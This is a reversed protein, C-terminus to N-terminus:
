IRNKRKIQEKIIFYGIILSILLGGILLLLWKYQNLFETLIIDYRKQSSLQFSIKKTHDSRTIVWTYLNNKKDVIDANSQIVKNHFQIKINIKQIDMLHNEEEVLSTFIGDYYYGDSEFTYTNKNDNIKASTFIMKYLDSQTYDELSDYKKHIKGGIVNKNKFFKFTYQKEELTPMYSDKKEKLFEESNLTEDEVDKTIVSFISDEVVRKHSDIKLHYDVTCGTLCFLLILVILIKKM